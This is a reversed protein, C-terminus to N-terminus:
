VQKQRKPRKSFVTALGHLEIQVNELLVERRASDRQRRHEGGDIVYRKNELTLEILQTRDWLQPQMDHPLQTILERLTASSLRTVFDLHEQRMAELNLTSSM